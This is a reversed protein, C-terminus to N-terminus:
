MTPTVSEIGADDVMPKKPLINKPLVARPLATHAIKRLAEAAGQHMPVTLCIKSTTVSVQAGQTSGAALLYQGAHYIAKVMNDAEDMTLESTALMLAATGVTTIRKQQNSYTGGAISLSLLAPNSETLKKVAVPDLPILRLKSQTMEARLPSAPIGIIQAAADIESNNLQQLATTFQTDIIKYDKHARLGHAALIQEFTTRGGSGIPGLSIKKGKLDKLNKILSDNRVVIHALEPYLSGLTRLETFPGHGEFPGKGNYAMLAIDAPALAITANGNRLLDINETSGSTILPIMKVHQKKAIDALSHAFVLYEGKGPGAAFPYGDQLRALRGNIRTVSRELEQQVVKQATKSSTYPISTTITNLTSLLRETAPKQIGNELFLGDEATYGAPAVREWSGNNKRYIASAHATIRDGADNGHSKVGVISRPGAGILTVLAAAGPHDWSGLEINKTAELIVDYYVVRREENSPSTSDIASGLRKLSIINFSGSGFTNNLRKELALRLKESDPQRECASLMVCMFIVLMKKIIHTM